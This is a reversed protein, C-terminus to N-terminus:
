STHEKQRIRVHAERLLSSAEDGPVARAVFARVEDLAVKVLDDWTPAAYVLRMM